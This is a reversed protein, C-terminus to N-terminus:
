GVFYFETHRVRVSLYIGAFALGGLALGGAGRGCGYFLGDWALVLWRFGACRRFSKGVVFMNRFFYGKGYGM